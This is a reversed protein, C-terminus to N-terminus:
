AAPPRQFRDGRSRGPPYFEGRARKEAALEELSPSGEDDPVRILFRETAIGIVVDPEVDDVLSRDLTEIQGFVLRGFTEALFPLMMNSNSDGHLLCTVAPAAPCELDLRHGRVLVRNDHVLRAQREIQAFPHLSEEEPDVKVGLDGHFPREVFSVEADGIRRIPVSRAVEDALLRYGLFAGFETWHM